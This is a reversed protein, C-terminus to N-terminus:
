AVRCTPRFVSVRCSLYVQVGVGQGPFSLPWRTTATVRFAGPIVHCPHAALDAGVLRRMAERLADHYQRPLTGTDEAGRPEAVAGMVTVVAACESTLDGSIVGAGGFTTEVMVRRDEFTEDPEDDSPERLSRTYIEAALEALDTLQAGAAAAAVLIADAADRCNPPLKDTWECMKRAYSESVTAEALAAAVRPHAAARRVWALYGAASGRTVKTRHILWSRPSYDGDASYGQAATFAGLIEARTATKVADLQELEHLCEAQAQGAMEAAGAGLYGLVTRLMGLAERTSAFPPTDGM